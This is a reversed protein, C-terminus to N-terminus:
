ITKYNYIIRVNLLALLHLLLIFLFLALIKKASKHLQDNLVLWYKKQITGYTGFEM